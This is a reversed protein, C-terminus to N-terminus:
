WQAYLLKLRVHLLRVAQAIDEDCVCFVDLRDFSTGHQGTRARRQKSRQLLDKLGYEAEAVQLHTEEECHRRKRKYETGKGNM